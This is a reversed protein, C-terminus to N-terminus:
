TLAEQKRMHLLVARAATLHKGRKSIDWLVPRLIKDINRFYRRKDAEQPADPNFKLARTQGAVDFYLDVGGRHPQEVAGVFHAREGASLADGDNSAITEIVRYRKGFRLKNHAFVDCGGLVHATAVALPIDFTESVSIVREHPIITRDMFSM